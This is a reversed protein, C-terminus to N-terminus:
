HSSRMTATFVLRYFKAAKEVDEVTWQRLLYTELLYRIGYVVMRTDKTDRNFGCRFEGYQSFLGKQSLIVM